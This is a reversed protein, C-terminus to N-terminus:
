GHAHGYAGGEPSFPAILPTVSAGLGLLMRAMTPEDRVILADGTVQCPAHRNGIHWALRPLDGTVRLLREAAALVQVARGDSLILLEGPVLAVLDAFDVMFALGGETVLRRRRVLREEHTLVLRDAAPGDALRATVHLLTM